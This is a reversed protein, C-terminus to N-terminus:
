EKHPVILAIQVNISAKKRRRKRDEIDYFDKKLGWDLIKQLNAVELHGM